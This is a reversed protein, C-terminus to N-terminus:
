VCVCVCVCACQPCVLHCLDVGPQVRSGRRGVDMDRRARDQRLPHGRGTHLIQQGLFTGKCLPLEGLFHWPQRPLTPCAEPGRSRLFPKPLSPACFLLSLPSFLNTHVGSSSRSEREVQLGGGLSPGERDSDGDGGGLSAERRCPNILFAQPPTEMDLSYAPSLSPQQTLVRGGVARPCQEGPVLLLGPGSLCLPGPWLLLGAM